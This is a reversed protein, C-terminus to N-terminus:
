RKKALWGMLDRWAKELSPGPMNPGTAIAAPNDKSRLIDYGTSGALWLDSPLATAPFFSGAMAANDLATKFMEPYDVANPDPYVVRPTHTTQAPGVKRELAGAPKRPQPM